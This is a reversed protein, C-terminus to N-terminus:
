SWHPPWPHPWEQKLISVLLTLSTSSHESPNRAIIQSLLYTLMGVFQHRVEFSNIGVQASLAASANCWATIGPSASCESVLSTTKAIFMSMMSVPPSSSISVRNLRAEFFPVRTSKVFFSYSGCGDHCISATCRQLTSSIARSQFNENSRFLESHIALRLFCLLLAFDKEENGAM